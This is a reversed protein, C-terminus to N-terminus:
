ALEWFEGPNSDPGTFFTLAAEDHSVSTANVNKGELLDGFKFTHLTNTQILGSLNGSVPGIYQNAQSQITVLDSNIIIAGAKPAVGATTTHISVRFRTRKVTSGIIGGNHEFWYMRPEARSRIYFRSDLPLIDANLRAYIAICVYWNGNVHDTIIQNPIISIGRGGRDNELQIILRGRFTDALPKISAELFFNYINFRFADHTYFQPTIRRVDNGVVTNESIARWWEDATARNAFILTLRWVNDDVPQLYFINSMYVHHSFTQM